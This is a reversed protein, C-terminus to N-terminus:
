EHSLSSSGSTQAEPLGHERRWEQCRAVAALRTRDIEKATADMPTYVGIAVPKTGQHVQWYCRAKNWSVGPVQCQPVPKGEFVKIRGPGNKRLTDAMRLSAEHKKSDHAKMIGKAVLEQRAAKAAELAVSCGDEFSMGPKRHSHVPFGRTQRKGKVRWSLRWSPNCKHWGKDLYCIGQVGSRRQGGTSRQAAVIQTDQQGDVELETQMRTLKPAETKGSARKVEFFAISAKRAAEVAYEHHHGKPWHHLVNFGTTKKWTGEWWVVDWQGSRDDWRVGKVGSERHQVYHNGSPVKKPADTSSGPRDRKGRPVKVQGVGEFVQGPCPNLVSRKVGEPTLRWKSGM